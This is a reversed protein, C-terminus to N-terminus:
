CETDTNDYYEVKGGAVAKEALVRAVRCYVVHLYIRLLKKETPVGRGLKKKDGKRGERGGEAARYSKM